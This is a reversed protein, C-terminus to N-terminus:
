VAARWTAARAAGTARSAEIALRGPLDPLPKPFPGRGCENGGVVELTARVYASAIEDITLLDGNHDRVPLHIIEGPVMETTPYRLVLARRDLSGPWLTTSLSDVSCARKGTFAVLFEVYPGAVAVDLTFGPRAESISQSLAGSTLFAAHASHIMSAVFVMLVALGSSLMSVADIPQQRLVRLPVADIITVLGLALLGLLVLQALCLGGTMLSLAKEAPPKATWYSRMRYLLDM